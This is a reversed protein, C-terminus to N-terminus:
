FATKGNFRLGNQHDFEIESVYANDKEEILKQQELFFLQMKAQESFVKTDAYLEANANVYELLSFPLSAQMAKPEGGKLKVHAELKVQSNDISEFALATDVNAGTSLLSDIMRTLTEDEHDGPNALSFFALVFSEPLSNIVMEHNFKQINLTKQNNEHNETALPINSFLSDHATLKLTKAQLHYKTEKLTSPNFHTSFNLNEIEFRQDRPSNEQVSAILNAIDLNVWSNVPFGKFDEMRGEIKTQGLTFEGGVGVPKVSLGKLQLLHSGTKKTLDYNLQGRVPNDITISTDSESQPNFTLDYDSSLRKGFEQTAWSIQSNKKDFGSLALLDVPREETLAILKEIDVFGTVKFPYIHYRTNQTLSFLIEDTEPQRNTDLSMTIVGSFMHGDDEIGIVIEPNQLSVKQIQAELTSMMINKTLFCGGVYGGGILSGALATILLKNM